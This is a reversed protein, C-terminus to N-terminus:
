SNLNAQLIAPQMKTRSAYIKYMIGVFFVCGLDFAAVFVVWFVWEFGVGVDAEFDEKFNWLFVRM